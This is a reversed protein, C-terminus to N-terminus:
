FSPVVVSVIIVTLIIVILIIVRLIVVSLIIVSLIIVSLIIFQKVLRLRKAAKTLTTTRISGVISLATAGLAIINIATISLTTATFSLQKLDHWSPLIKKSEFQIM